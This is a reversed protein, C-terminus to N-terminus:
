RSLRRKGRRRRGELTQARQEAQPAQKIVSHVANRFSPADELTLIAPQSHARNTPLIVQSSTAQM